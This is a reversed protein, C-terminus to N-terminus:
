VAGSFPELAQALEGTSDESGSAPEAVRVGHRGDANNAIVSIDTAPVGITELAHVTKAAEDYHKYLHTFTRIAM